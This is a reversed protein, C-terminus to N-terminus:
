RSPRKKRDPKLAVIELGGDGGHVPNRCAKGKQFSWGCVSCKQWCDCQGYGAGCIPCKVSSLIMRDLANTM